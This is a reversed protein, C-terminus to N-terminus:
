GTGQGRTSCKSGVRSAAVSQTMPLPSLVEPFALLDLMRKLTYKRATAVSWERRQCAEALARSFRTNEGANKARHLLTSMSNDYGKRLAAFFWQLPSEILAARPQAGWERIAIQRVGEAFEMLEPTLEFDADDAEDEAPLPAVFVKPPMTFVLSKLFLKVNTHFTLKAERLM